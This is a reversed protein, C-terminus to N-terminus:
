NELPARKRNRLRLHMKLGTDGIQELSDPVAVRQWDTL